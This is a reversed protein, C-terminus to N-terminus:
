EDRSSRERQTIYSNELGALTGTGRPRGWSETSPWKEADYLGVRRFM